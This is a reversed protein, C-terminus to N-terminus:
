GILTRDKVMRKSQLTPDEMPKRSNKVDPGHSMDM